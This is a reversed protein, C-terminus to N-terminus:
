AAYSRDMRDLRRILGDWALQHVRSPGSNSRRGTVQATVKEQAERSPMGLPTGGALTIVQIACAKQLAYMRMYAAGASGGMTMLGHNRLIVCNRNGVHQVLREREDLDLAIGEFDHYAVDPLLTMSDQNLPLLGAAQCSVAVGENTHLHIVCHADERAAHVAGHIIHGGINYGLGTEDLLIKGESDVKILSSATIEDFYLGFPNILYHREPGPVRASIHTFISDNWGQLACARYCAALEVRAAWEERSVMDRLRKKRKTTKKRAM